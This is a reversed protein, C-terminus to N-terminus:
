EKAGEVLEKYIQALPKTISWGPYHQRFKGMDSIYCMHDGKRNQDVYTTQITNGTLEQAAHIAELM